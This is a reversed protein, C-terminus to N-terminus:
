LRSNVHVYFKRVIYMAGKSPLFEAATRSMDWAKLLMRSKKPLYFEDQWGMCEEDQTEVEM